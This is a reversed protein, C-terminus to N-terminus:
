GNCNDIIKDNVYMNCICIALVFDEYSAGEEIKIERAQVIISHFNILFQINEESANLLESIV